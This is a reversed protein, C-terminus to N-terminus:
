KRTFMKILQQNYNRIAHGYINVTTSTKQHGLMRSVEILPIGIQLAITATTHRICHMTKGKIGTEKQMKFWNRIIPSYDVHNGTKAEFVYLSDRHKEREAQLDSFVRDFVIPVFRNGASTKPPVVDQRSNGSITQQIHIERNVFDVDQWRLAILEGIRMGTSFLIRFMLHYNYGHPKTSKRFYLLMRGIERKTFIEKANKKKDLNPLTVSFYKPPLMNHKHLYNYTSTVLVHCANVLSASLNQEGFMNNYLDQLIVSDVANAPMNGITPLIHRANRLYLNYTSKRITLAKEAMMLDFAKRFTIIGANIKETEKSLLFAEAEKFGATTLEFTNRTHINGDADKWKVTYKGIKRNKSISGTGYQRRSKKNRM